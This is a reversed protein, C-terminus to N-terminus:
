GYQVRLMLQGTEVSDIRRESWPNLPLFRCSYRYHAGSDLLYVQDTTVLRKGSEGESHYHPKAAHDGAASITTFSYSVIIALIM